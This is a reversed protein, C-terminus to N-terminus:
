DGRDRAGDNAGDSADDGSDSLNGLGYRHLKSYLSQRSLGLVEAASARNDATYALAAEICLREILDTSERVIDKLPVRGVLDTLQEVSRPAEPTDAALDRLRRGVPRVAFGYHVPTGAARVASLEVQEEAGSGISRVITALNRAAGHQALQAAILDLDVGPRGIFEGLARGRLQDATALAVLEVFASNAATIRLGSDAIVFPDPITDLLDIVPATGAITRGPRVLLYRGGQQRFGTASVLLQPGNDALAVLIPSVHQATMVSGLFAILRSQDTSAFLQELRGGVLAGPKAEVLEHAAPNAERVRLTDADVVLVPEGSREFLLRYRTEVHRLRLYDRELSQQTKILQQQLRATARLDRGLALRRGGALAVVRYRVPMDGAPTIHTIQRWRNDATTPGTALMDAIKDQSDSTATAGWPQGMWGSLDPGSADNVAVDVITGDRDLLLALDGAALALRAAADPSGSLWDPDAFCREGTGSQM